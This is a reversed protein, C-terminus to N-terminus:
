FSLSAGDFTTPEVTGPFLDAGMGAATLSQLFRTSPNVTLNEVLFENGEEVAVYIRYRGHHRCLDKLNRFAVEPTTGPNLTVRLCPTVRKASRVRLPVHGRSEAVPSAPEKSRASKKAKEERELEQAADTLEAWTDCSAYLSRPIETQQGYSPGISLDAPFPMWGKVFDRRINVAEMFVPLFEKPSVELPVEVNVEDHVTSLLWIPWRNQRVLKWVRALAAKNLDAATGQVYTNFAAGLLRERKREDVQRLDRFWRIRGFETAIFGHELCFKKKERILAEVRTLRAFYTRKIESAEKTTCGLKSALGADTMGYVVGFNLTKGRKRQDPTIEAMPVGLFLSATAEHVDFGNELATILGTEKAAAALVRYEIQSFDASVWIRGPAACLAKRINVRETTKPWTQGNMRIKEGARGVGGASTFRGTRAGLPNYELHLRGDEAIANDAKDVFSGKLKTLERHELMCTIAPHMSELKRLVEEDTSDGKIQPLRLKRFLLDAVQQQSQLNVSYGTLSKIKEELATIDDTFDVTALHGRDIHTGNRSMEAPAKAAKMELGYVIHLNLRRIEPMQVAHLRLAVDADAGAYYLGDETPILAFNYSGHEGVDEMELMEIGLKEKALADLGVKKRGGGTSRDSDLMVAQTMTCHVWNIDLGGLYQRCRSWDFNGGHCVLEACLLLETLTPIVEDRPTNRDGTAHALPVYCARGIRPSLSFGVLKDTFLSLGTTEIDFGIPHGEASAAACEAIFDLAVATTDALVYNDRDIWSLDKGTMGFVGLM